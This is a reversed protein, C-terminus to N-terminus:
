QVLKRSAEQVVTNAMPGARLGMGDDRQAIKCHRYNKNRESVPASSLHSIAGGRQAGSSNGQTTAMRALEPTIYAISHLMHMERLLGALQRRSFAPLM